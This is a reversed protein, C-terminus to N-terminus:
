TLHRALKRDALQGGAAAHGGGGQPEVLAPSQDRRPPRVSVLPPVVARRQASDREDLCAPSGADGERPNARRELRQRGPLRRGTAVPLAERPAPARVDVGPDRRELSQAPAEVRADAATTQRDVAAVQEVGVVFSRLEPGAGM